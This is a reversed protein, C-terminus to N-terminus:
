LLTGSSFKVLAFTIAGSVVAASFFITGYIPDGKILLVIAIAIYTTTQLLFLIRIIQIVIGRNKKWFVGLKTFM